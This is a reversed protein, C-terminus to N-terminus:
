YMNIICADVCIHIWLLRTVWATVFIKGTASVDDPLEDIWVINETAFKEERIKKQKINQHQQKSCEAVLANWSKLFYIHWFDM